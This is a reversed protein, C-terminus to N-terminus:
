GGFFSIKNKEIFARYFHDFISKIEGYFSIENKLYKITQRSNKTM